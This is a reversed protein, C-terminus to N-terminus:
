ILLQEFLHMKRGQIFRPAAITSITRRLATPLAIAEAAMGLPHRELIWFPSLLDTSLKLYKSQLEALIWFHTELAELLGESPHSLQSHGEGDESPRDSAKSAYNCSKFFVHLAKRLDGQSTNFIHM